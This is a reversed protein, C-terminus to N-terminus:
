GQVNKETLFSRIRKKAFTTKVMDLWKRNPKAKESTLIEVIDKTKLKADLSTMKGNVKAGNAHLGVYTHVAFAFDLPSAGLPLDIIDGNPTYVFIRDTFFDGRLNQIFLEPDKISKQLEKMTNLWALQNQFQKTQTKANEKYGFHAAIGFEAHEHMEPTKIQVEVIGGDGTFISTHLSQYGNTKPLAIFDKVRGPVPKWTSHIIGLVRYCDEVTPVIVRLAVLDYIVNVDKGKKQLKKFLSYIRKVRYDIHFDRFGNKALVKSLSHHVHKLYKESIFRKERVVKDLEAYKKPNVVEFALDEMEGKLRMMGLREALPAYIDLAEMAIRKQKEKPVFKLTRMNHLKDALKVILVRIDESTAIFFKRLSEVHREVGRYKLKGLKTVGEIIFAIEDGFEEKIQDITVTTDEVTDHLLGATIVIPPMGLQALIQATEALHCFYPEGSYRAQGEHAKDAFLYANEIMARDEKSLSHIENCIDSISACKSEIM